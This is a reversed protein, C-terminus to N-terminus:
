LCVASVTEWSGTFVLRSVNGLVAALAYINLLHGLLSVFEEKEAGKLTASRSLSDSSLRLPWNLTGHIIAVVTGM